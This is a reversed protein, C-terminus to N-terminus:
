YVTLIPLSHCRFHSIKFLFHMWVKPYDIAVEKCVLGDGGCLGPVERLHATFHLDQLGSVNQSVTAQSKLHVAESLCPLRSSIM